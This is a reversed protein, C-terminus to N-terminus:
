CTVEPRLGGFRYPPWPGTLQLRYMPEPWQAQLREVEDLFDQVARLTELMSGQTTQM